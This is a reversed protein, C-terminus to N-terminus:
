PTVTPIHIITEDTSGAGYINVVITGDTSAPIFRLPNETVPQSIEVIGLWKQGRTDLQQVDLMQSVWKGDLVRARDPTIMDFMVAYLLQYLGQTMDFDGFDPDPPVASGTVHVEFRQKETCLQRELKMTKQEATEDSLRRPLSAPPIIGGYPDLTWAPSGIPVFVIRPTATATQMAVNRRGLLISGDPFAIRLSGGSTYAGSGVSQVATGQSTFSSLSLTSAGTPTCVWVTDTVLDGDADAHQVTVGAGDVIAHVPRTLKHPTATTVVVPTAVTVASLTLTSAVLGAAILRKTMELSLLSVLAGIM